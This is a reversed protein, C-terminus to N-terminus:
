RKKRFSALSQKGVITPWHTSGDIYWSSFRDNGDLRIILVENDPSCAQGKHDFIFVQERGIYYILDWDLGDHYHGQGTRPFPKWNGLEDKERFELDQTSYRRMDAHTPSGGLRREIEARSKGPLIRLVLDRIMRQRVTPGAGEVDADDWVIPDFQEQPLYKCIVWLDPGYLPLALVAAALLWLAPRRFWRLKLTV